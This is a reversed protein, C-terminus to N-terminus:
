IKKFPIILIEPIYIYLKKIKLFSIKLIFQNNSLCTDYGGIYVVIVVIIYTPQLRSEHVHLVGKRGHTETPSM